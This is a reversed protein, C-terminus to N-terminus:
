MRARMRAHMRDLRPVRMTGARVNNGVWVCRDITPHRVVVVWRCRVKTRPKTRQISPANTANRENLQARRFLGITHLSDLRHTWSTSRRRHPTGSGTPRHRALRAFSAYCVARQGHRWRAPWHGITPRYVGATFVNISQPPTSAIRPQNIDM